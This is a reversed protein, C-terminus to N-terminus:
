RSTYTRSGAVIERIAEIVVDPAEFQIAHGSDEVIVQRGRSSLRALKPQLEHMWIQHFARAEALAAPDRPEMSRGATLVVLPRDGLDNARRAQDASAKWHRGEDADTAYSRPLTSLFSLHQAEEFTLGEPPPRSLNGARASRLILRILGIEHAVPVVEYLATRIPAPVRNAFGLSSRPERQYQDEHVADVLVVGAVEALHKGAFVRIPFGAGSAGVLVYPPQITAAKLLAHLDNAVAESTRPAPGPDSWGHGARDYWCARTFTAVERQIPTWRYGLAAELVVAPSGEGICHINLSRGGIDVSRGVRPVQTRDRRRGLQEYAVGAAIAAVAVVGMLKLFLRAPKRM